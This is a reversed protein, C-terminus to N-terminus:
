RRLPLLAFSTNLSRDLSGDVPRMALNQHELWLTDRSRLYEFTVNDVGQGTTLGMRGKRAYFSAGHANPGLCFLPARPWDLSRGDIAVTDGAYLGGAVVWSGQVSDVVVRRDMWVSDAGSADDGGQPEGYHVDCGAIALAVLGFRLFFRPINM